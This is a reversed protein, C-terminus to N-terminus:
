LSKVTLASGTFVLSSVTLSQPHFILLVSLFLSLCCGLPSTCAPISTVCMECSKLGNVSVAAQNRYTLLVQKTPINGTFLLLFHKFPLAAACFVIMM